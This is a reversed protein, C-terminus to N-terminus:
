YGKKNKKLRSRWTEDNFRFQGCWYDRKVDVPKPNLRCEYLGDFYLCNYCAWEMYAEPKENKFPLVM